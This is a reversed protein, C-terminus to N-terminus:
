ALFANSPLQLMLRILDAQRSTTTKRYISQLQKRVTDHQVGARAAIEKVTCGGALMRSVRLESPTLDFTQALLEADLPAATAPHHFLVLILPQVGYVDNLQEPMLLTYFAYLVDSGSEPFDPSAVQMSRYGASLGAGDGLSAVLAGCGENFQRQFPDPLKLMGGASALLATAELLRRCADNISVVTGDPGLLALPQRLKNLLAHGTLARTSTVFRHSQLQAARQLHPTLRELFGTEEVGLPPRGPDRLVCFFVCAADDDLLKCGSSHRAGDPVSLEQLFLDNAAFTEGHLWQGLAYPALMPSAPDFREGQQLRRSRGSSPLDLGDLYSLVGQRKDLALLVASAEIARNLEAFFGRWASPHLAAEYLAHVLADYRAHSVDM